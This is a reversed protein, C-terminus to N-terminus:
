LQQPQCILPEQFVIELTDTARSVRDGFIETKLQESSSIFTSAPGIESTIWGHGYLDKEREVVMQVERDAHNICSQWEM